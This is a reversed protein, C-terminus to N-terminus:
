PKLDFVAHVTSSQGPGVSISQNLDLYGDASFVAKYTGSALKTTFPTRGISTGYMSVM